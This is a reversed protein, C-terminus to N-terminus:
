AGKGRWGAAILRTAETHVARVSAGISRAAETLSYDRDPHLYLLALLDGKSV